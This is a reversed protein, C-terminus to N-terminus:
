SGSIRDVLALAEPSDWEAPGHMVAVQCGEGDVLLTTPMGFALGRTKLLNFAAMKPDRYDPLTKAGIEALFATPKGPDGLDTNVTVVQFRDGGRAAQLRDLAPMEARCPACWTAWFNVLVARGKFDALSRAKGDTEQFGVDMVDVAADAPLLAALEGHALPKLARALATSGGCRDAAGEVAHRGSVYVSATGAVAGVVLAGAVLLWLRRRPSQNEM